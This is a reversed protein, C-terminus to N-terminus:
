LPNLPLSSIVVGAGKSTKIFSQLPNSTYTLKLVAQDMFVYGRQLVQKQQLRQATREKKEIWLDMIDLTAM